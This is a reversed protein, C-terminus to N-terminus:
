HTSLVNARLLGSLCSLRNCFEAAAHWAIDNKPLHGELETGVDFTMNM